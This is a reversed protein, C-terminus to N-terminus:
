VSISSVIDYKGAVFCVLTLCTVKASVMTIATALANVGNTTDGNITYGAGNSVRIFVTQGVVPVPSCKLTILASAGSFTSTIAFTQVSNTFTIATAVAIATTYSGAGSGYVITGATVSGDAVVNGAVQAAVSATPGVGVGGAASVNGATYLSPGKHQANGPTGGDNPYDIAKDVNYIAFLSDNPDIFGSLGSVVDIVGVMQSRIQTVSVTGGATTIISTCPNAGPFLKRGNTRLIRGAPATGGVGATVTGLNLLSQIQGVTTFVSNQSTTYTFINDGYPATSIYNLHRTNDYTSQGKISSM